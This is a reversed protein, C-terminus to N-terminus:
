QEALTSFIGNTNNRVLQTLWVSSGRVLCMFVWFPGGPDAVSPSGSLVCSQLFSSLLLQDILKEETNRLKELCLSVVIRNGRYQFLPKM